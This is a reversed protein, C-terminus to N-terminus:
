KLTYIITSIDGFIPKILLPMLAGVKNGYLVTKMNVIMCFRQGKVLDIINESLPSPIDKISNCAMNPNSGSYYQLDPTVGFYYTMSPDSYIYSDKGWKKIVGGKPCSKKWYEVDDLFNKNSLKASLQLNMVNEATNYLVIGMDGDVSEIIKNMDIATNIGALIVQLSKNNNLVKIFDKGRVNLFTGVMSTTPMSKLYRGQIPRYLSYAKKIYTNIMNNFSFTEGSIQLINNDVKNIEAALVIQSPDAEKPAGIIFPAVVKQPLSSALAVFSLPSDLGYLKEYLPSAKISNDEDQKFYKQIQRQMIAQQSAVIPGMILMANSSYGMLWMNKLVCFNLDGFKTPKTCISHTSLKEVWEEFSNKDAINATFGINGDVSEFVYLNSEFDIGCDEIKKIKLLSKISSINGSQFNNLIEKGDIALIATSNQPIITLSNDDSCSSFLCVLIIIFYLRQIIKITKKMM